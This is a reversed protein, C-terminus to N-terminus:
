QVSIIYGNACKVYNMKAANTLKKYSQSL